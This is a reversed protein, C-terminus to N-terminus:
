LTHSWASRQYITPPVAVYAKSLEKGAVALVTKVKALMGSYADWQKRLTDAYHM